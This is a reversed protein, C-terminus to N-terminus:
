TFLIQSIYQELCNIIKPFYKQSFFQELPSKKVKKRFINKHLVDSKLLSKVKNLFHNRSFDLESSSHKIKESLARKFFRARSFLTGIEKCVTYNKLHLVGKCM